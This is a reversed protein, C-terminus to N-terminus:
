CLVRRDEACDESKSSQGAAEQILAVLHKRTEDALITWVGYSAKDPPIPTAKLWAGNAFTYFDDGPAVAKDMAAVDVATASTKGWASITGLVILFIIAFSRLSM